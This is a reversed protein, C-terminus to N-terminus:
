LLSDNSGDNTENLNLLFEAGSNLFTITLCDILAKM